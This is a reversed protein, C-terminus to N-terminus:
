CLGRANVWVTVELSNTLAVHLLVLPIQYLPEDDNLLLICEALILESSELKLQKVHLKLAFLRVSM